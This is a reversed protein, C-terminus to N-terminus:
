VYSDSKFVYGEKDIGIGQKNVLQVILVNQAQFKCQQLPKTNMNKFVLFLFFVIM